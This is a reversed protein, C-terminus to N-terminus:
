SSTRGRALAKQGGRLRVRVVKAEAGSHPQQAGRQEGRRLRGPRFPAAAQRGAPRPDLRVDGRSPTRGRARIPNEQSNEFIVHQANAYQVTANFYFDLATEGHGPAGEAKALAELRRAQLGVHQSIM